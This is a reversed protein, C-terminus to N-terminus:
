AGTGLEVAAAARLANFHDSLAKALKKTDVKVIENWVSPRRGGRKVIYSFSGGLQLRAVGVVWDMNDQWDGSDPWFSIRGEPLAKLLVSATDKKPKLASGDAATASTKKGLTKPTGAKKSTTM